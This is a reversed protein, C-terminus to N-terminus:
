RNMFERYTEDIIESLKYDRATVANETHTSLSLELLSAKTIRVDPHHDMADAERAVPLFFEALESQDRFKFERVLKNEHLKWSSM